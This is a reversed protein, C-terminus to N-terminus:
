KQSIERAGKIDQAEPHCRHANEILEALAACLTRSARASNRGLRVVKTWLWPRVAAFLAFRLESFNGNEDVFQETAPFEFDSEDSISKVAGFSVGRLEAARAVAGAEMDVLQAGFSKRLKAKQATGAVSVFSM